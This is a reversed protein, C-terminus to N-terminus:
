VHVQKTYAVLGKERNAWSVSIPSYQQVENFAPIAEFVTNNLAVPSLDAWFCEVDFQLTNAEDDIGPLWYLSIDFSSHSDLKNLTLNWIGSTDKYFHDKNFSYGSPLHKFAPASELSSGVVVAKVKSDGFHLSCSQSKPAVIKIQNYNVGFLQSPASGNKTVEIYNGLEYGPLIQPALASVFSCDEMGDALQSCHITENSQRVSPLQELVETALGKRAYVHVSSTNNKGDIRQLFRLKLPNAENFPQVVHVLLTGLVGIAILVFVMYRNLKGAFPILPLVLSVSVIWLLNYVFTEAKASEQLTKNVGELVLWGSNYIIFISLPVTILYQLSWDYGFSHVTEKCQKKHRSQSQQQVHAEGHENDEHGHRHEHDHDNDSSYRADIGNLLPVSEGEAVQLHSRNRCLSWGILGLFSAVAELTFLISVAFEGSHRASEAGSLGHTTFALGVWYAFSLEVIALLRLNEEAIISFFSFAVLIISFVLLLISTITAVLLLPRSSPLYQNFSKYSEVVLYVVIFMTVLLAVPISIASSFSVQWKRSRITYLLLLGNLIPFVTLLAVNIKFLQSTSITFFYNLFSAFVAPEELLNPKQELNMGFEKDKSLYDIFDLSNSLMHWLSKESTRRINDEATHYYDRPKFFALDLGRMGAEKYVKYDTESHVFGNAFGQQFISSAYPTRVNQFYKAIGYDTARFLIAKGGAGTGELNLFYKVLKFWPHRTFATAGLLGFEENNNFNMVITREPQKKQQSFYSLIGLMSAVGMGDDTVGYSTPVSDFHSSLLIGPLKANKGEIKVLLNNSEYYSVTKPNSSSEFMFSNNGNIDNDWTIFNAGTILEQIRRELFDHVRDNGISGYPHQEKAIVQLDLWAANLLNVESEVTPFSIFDVSNDIYSLSVCLAITAVVFLSLSTKRYGFVSRFVRTILSPREQQRQQHKQQGQQGQQGAEHVDYDQEDIVLSGSSSNNDAM